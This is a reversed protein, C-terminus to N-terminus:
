AHCARNAHEAVHTESALECEDLASKARRMEVIAASHEPADVGLRLVYEAAQATLRAAIDIKYKLRQCEPCDLM